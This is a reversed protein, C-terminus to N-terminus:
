VYPNGILKLSIKMGDTFKISAIGVPSEIDNVYISIYKSWDSSNEITEIKQIMQWEGEGTVIVNKFNDTVTKVMNEEERSLYFDGDYEEGMRDYGERSFRCITIIATDTYRKAADLLESPIEPEVTFGEVYYNGKERLEAYQKEVENKYFDYLGDFVEIKHEAEKIKLGEYINRTYKTYV